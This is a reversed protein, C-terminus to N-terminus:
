TNAVKKPLYFCYPMKPFYIKELKGDRVIDIQIIKSKYFSLARKSMRRSDIEESNGKERKQSRSRHVTVKDCNEIEQKFLILKIYREKEEPKISDILVKVILYVYFGSEIICERQDDSAKHYRPDEQKSFWGFAEDIYRRGYLQEYKSYVKILYDRLAGVRLTKRMREIIVSDYDMKEILAM